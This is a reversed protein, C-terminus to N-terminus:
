NPAGQEVATLRDDLQETQDEITQIGYKLDKLIEMSQKQTEIVVLNLKKGDLAPKAIDGWFIMLSVVLILLSGIGIIMPLNETWTKTKRQEARVVNDILISRQKTTLPQLDKCDKVPDTTPDNIFVVEGTEVRYFEVCKQGKNNLEIAASPPVPILRKEKDKEKKLKWYWNGKKDKHDKAKDEIIIKRGDAMEKIRIIHKYSKNLLWFILVILLTIVVFASGFYWWFLTTADIKIL